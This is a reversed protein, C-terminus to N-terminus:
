GIRSEETTGRLQLDLNEIAVKRVTDIPINLDHAALIIGGSLAAVGGRVLLALMEEPAVDGAQVIADYKQREAAEFAPAFRVALVTMRPGGLQFTEDAM